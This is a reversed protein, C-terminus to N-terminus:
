MTGDDLEDNVLYFKSRREQAAMEAELAALRAAQEEEQKKRVNGIMDRFRKQMEPEMMTYEHMLVIQDPSFKQLLTAAMLTEALKNEAATKADAVDALTEKTTALEQTTAGLAEVVGVHEHMYRHFYKFFLGLSILGIALQQLHWEDVYSQAAWLWANIIILYVLISHKISQRIAPNNEEVMFVGLLGIPPWTYNRCADTPKFHWTLRLAGVIIIFRQFIHWNSTLTSYFASSTEYCFLISVIYILQWFSLDLMDRIFNIGVLAKLSAIFVLEGVLLPVIWNDSFFSNALWNVLFYQSVIILWCGFRALVDVIAEPSSFYFQTATKIRSITNM